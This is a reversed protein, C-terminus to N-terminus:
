DPCGSFLLIMLMQRIIKALKFNELHCCKPVQKPTARLEIIRTPARVIPSEIRAVKNFFDSSLIPEM